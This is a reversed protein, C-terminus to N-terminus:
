HWRGCYLCAYYTPFECNFVDVIDVKTGSVTRSIYVKTDINPTYWRQLKPDKFLSWNTSRNSIPLGALFSFLTNENWGVVRYLIHM